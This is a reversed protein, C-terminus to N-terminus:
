SKREQNSWISEHPICPRACRSLYVGGACTAQLYTASGQPVAEAEIGRSGCRPARGAPVVYRVGGGLDIQVPPGQGTSRALSYHDVLSGAVKSGARLGVGPRVAGTM